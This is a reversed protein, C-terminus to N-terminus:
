QEESLFRQRGSAIRVGPIKVFEVREGAPLGRQGSEGMQHLVGKVSERFERNRRVALAKEPCSVADRDCREIPFLRDSQVNLLCSKELLDGPRSVAVM